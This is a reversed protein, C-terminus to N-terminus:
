LQDEVFWQRNAAGRHRQEMERRLDPDKGIEEHGM